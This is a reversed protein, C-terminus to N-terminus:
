GTLTTPANREGPRSHGGPMHLQPLSVPALDPLPEDEPLHEQSARRIETRLSALFLELADALNHVLHYRDAVHLARPAAARAAAAYDTARDRSIGQVTPHERLWAAFTSRERDQLLDIITHRELDVLITGYRRRKKWSWDDVGLVRVTPIRSARVQMLIRLLSSPSTAIGLRQALRMGLQGGTGLGLVPVLASLRSTMRGYPQVLGPLRETFIKRPCTPTSCVFKRVTLLLIVNRGACPLDAVMRQYRSHIRASPRQCEPCPMTPRDCAIGIVLESASPDISDITIGVPFHFVSSLMERLGM